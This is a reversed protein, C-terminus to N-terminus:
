VLPEGEARVSLPRVRAFRGDGYLNNIGNAGSYDGDDLLLPRLQDVEPRKGLVWFNMFYKSLNNGRQRAELEARAVFRDLLGQNYGAAALWPRHVSAQEPFFLM